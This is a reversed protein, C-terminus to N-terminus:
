LRVRSAAIHPRHWIHQHATGPVGGGDRECGRGASPASSPPGQAPSRHSQPDWPWSSGAEHCPSWGTRSVARMEQAMLPGPSKLFFFALPIGWPTQTSQWCVAAPKWPSHLCLSSPGTPEQSHCTGSVGTVTRPSGPMPSHAPM